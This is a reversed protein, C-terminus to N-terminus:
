TARALDDVMHPNRDLAIGERRLVVGVTRWLIRLDLALSFQDIYKNDLELRRSWPLDNRGMTQALGTIGPKM